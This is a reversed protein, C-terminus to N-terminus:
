EENAKQLIDKTENWLKKDYKKEVIVSQTKYENNSKLQGRILKHKGSEGIDLTRFSDEKFMRPDRVRYRVYNKTTDKRIFLM